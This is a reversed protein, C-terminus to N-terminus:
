RKGEERRRRRRRAWALWRNLRSQERRTERWLQDQLFLRNEEVTTQSQGAYRLLVTVGAVVLGVTWVVVIAMWLDAEQRALRGEEAALRNWWFYALGAWFPLSVLMAVLERTSVTSPSRKRELVRAAPRRRRDPSPPPPERRRPDPPFVHSVISLYRYHAATYALVSLGLVLDLWVRDDQWPQPDPAFGYRRGRFILLNALFRYPDMGKRHMFLLSASSVLVLPPGARWHTGVAVLGVVVPLLCWIGVGFQLLVSTLVVLAFLSVVTYNYAVDEAADNAHAPDTM